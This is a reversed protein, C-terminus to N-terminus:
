KESRVIEVLKKLDELDNEEIENNSDISSIIKKAVDEFLIITEHTQKALKSFKVYFELNKYYAMSAKPDKHKLKLPKLLKLGELKSENKIIMFDYGKKFKELDLKM